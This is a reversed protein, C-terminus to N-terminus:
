AIKQKENESKNWLEEHLKPAVGIVREFEEVLIIKLEKMYNVGFNDYAPVAINDHITFIPVNPFKETFRKTVIDLIMYAEFRQLLAPLKKHPKIVDTSTNKTYRGNQDESCSSWREKLSTLVQYVNPFEKIFPEKIKQYDENRSFLIIMSVKKINDRPNSSYKLREKENKRYVMNYVDFLEKLDIDERDYLSILYDYFTGNSTIEKFKEIDEYQSNLNMSFGERNVRNSSKIDKYINKKNVYHVDGREENVEGREGREGREEGEKRVTEITSISKTFTKYLSEYLPNISNSLLLSPPKIHGKYISNFIFYNTFLPICFFPQSNKLDVAALRYEKNSDPKVCYVFDRLKKPLNTLSSHLRFGFDDVMYYLKGNMLSYLNVLGCSFKTQDRRSLSDLTPRLYEIAGDYDVRLNRFHKTLHPYKRGAWRRRGDAKAKKEQLKKPLRKFEVPVPKPFTAYEVCFRYHRCRGQGKEDSYYEFTSEIIGAEELYNIATKYNICISQLRVSSLPYSGDEAIKDPSNVPSTYLSSIIQIIDSKKVGIPLPFQSFLDIDLNEPVFYIQKSTSM